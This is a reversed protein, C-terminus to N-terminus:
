ILLIDIMIGISSSASVMEFKNLWRIFLEVLSFMESIMTTSPPLVSPEWFITEFNLLAMRKFESFPRALCIFKPAFCAVPVTKYKICASEKGGLFKSLCM